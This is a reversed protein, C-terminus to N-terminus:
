QNAPPPHHTSFGLVKWTGGEKKLSFRAEGAQGEQKERPLDRHTIRATAEARRARSRLVKIMGELDIELSGGRQQELADAIGALVSAEGVLTELERLFYAAKDYAVARYM